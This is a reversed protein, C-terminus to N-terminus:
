PTPFEARRRADHDVPNSGTPEVGHATKRLFQVIELERVGAPFTSAV